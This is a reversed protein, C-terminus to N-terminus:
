LPEQRRAPISPLAPPANAGPRAGPWVERLRTGLVRYFREAERKCQCACVFDDAYRCLAVQGACHSQVVEAFWRDLAHHLSRHALVPSVIGGQPLGTVPHLGQGDTDLVGAKLWTRILGLFPRADIRERLMDMLRAQDRHDLSGKIDAEVVSGYPGFPRHRTLDRVADRAGIKKRYGDSSALFDPEYIADLRRTVATQLLTDETAPIGLPRLAGQGKPISHRRVM